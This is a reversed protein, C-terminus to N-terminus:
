RWRYAAFYVSFLPLFHRPQIDERLIKGNHLHTDANPLNMSAYVTYESCIFNCSTASKNISFTPVSCDIASRLEVLADVPMYVCM